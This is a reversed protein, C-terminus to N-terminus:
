RNRDPWFRRGDATRMDLIQKGRTIRRVVVLPANDEVVRSGTVTVQAGIKLLLGNDGRDPLDRAWHGVSDCGREVKLLPPWDPHGAGSTTVALIHEAEFAISRPQIHRGLSPRRRDRQKRARSRCTSKPDGIGSGRDQRALEIVAAAHEHV